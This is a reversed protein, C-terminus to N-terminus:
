LWSSVKNFSTLSKGVDKPRKESGQYFIFSQRGFNECVGYIILLQLKSELFNLVLFKVSNSELNEMIKLSYNRYTADSM